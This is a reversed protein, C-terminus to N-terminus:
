REGLSKKEAIYKRYGRWTIIPSYFINAPPNYYSVFHSISPFENREFGSGTSVDDFSCFRLSDVSKYDGHMYKIVTNGQQYAIRFDSAQKKNGSVTPNVSNADTFPM